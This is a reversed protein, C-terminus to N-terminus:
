DNAIIYILRKKNNVPIQLTTQFEIGLGSTNEILSKAKKESFMIVPFHVEINGVPYGMKGIKLGVGAFLQGQFIALTEVERLVQSKYKGMSSNVFSVDQTSNVMFNLVTGAVFYQRVFYDKELTFFRVSLPVGVYYSKQSIDKIKILNTQTETESIKWLFYENDSDYVLKNYSFRVGGTFAFRKSLLYELKLGGYYFFYDQGSPIFGCNYNYGYDSYYSQSERIMEPKNTEVYSIQIGTEVGIRFRPLTITDQAQIQTFLLLVLCFIITIKKKM